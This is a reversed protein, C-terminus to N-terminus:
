LADAGTMLVSEGEGAGGFVGACSVAEAFGIWEEVGRVYVDDAEPVSEHGWVVVEGFEARREVMKVEVEGERGACEDEEMARLAEASPAKGGMQTHTTPLVKDTKQLVLGTYNAPLRLTRGRLKRGRLYSTKTIKNDNTTTPTPSWYRAPTQIPGSHHITCPLLNPTTRKTSTTSTPAVAYM